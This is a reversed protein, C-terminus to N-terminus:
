LASLGIAWGKGDFMIEANPTVASPKPAKIVASPEILKNEAHGNADIYSVALFEKGSAKSKVPQISTVTIKM